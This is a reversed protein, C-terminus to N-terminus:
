RYFLAFKRKIIIVSSMEPLSSKKMFFTLKAPKLNNLRKWGTVHKIM